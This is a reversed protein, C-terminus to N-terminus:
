RSYRPPRFLDTIPCPSLIYGEEIVIAMSVKRNFFLVIFQLEGPHIHKSFVRFFKLNFKEEYDDEDKFRFSELKKVFVVVQLYNTQDNEM